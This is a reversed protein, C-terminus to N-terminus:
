PACGDAICTLVFPERPAGAVLRVARGALSALGRGGVSAPLPVRVVMRKAGGRASLVTPENPRGSPITVTTTASPRDEKPVPAADREALKKELQEIRRNKQDTERALDSVAEHERDFQEKLTEIEGTNARESRLRELEAAIQEKESMAKSLEAGQRSRDLVLIMTSVLLVLALSGAALGFAPVRFADTIKQWFSQGAIAEAPAEVVREDDVYSRLAAANAVKDRRGPMEAFTAEFKAAEGADLQQRVYRDVLDNEVEAVEFFLEDDGFMKEEFSEREAGDMELFLYRRIESTETM